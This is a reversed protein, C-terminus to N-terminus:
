LNFLKIANQSTRESVEELTTLKLEAIKEAIVPIYSSENRKGRYPVPTLYPSDTELIIHDLSTQKVVEAMTANKYTVVGGIGLYFGLDIVKEAEQVNGPFCHFVGTINEKKYDKIINILENLSKRSHLVLPLKYQIALEIQNRLAIEQETIFTKDWYYDLGCEGIAYFTQKTIESHIFDLEEKYNSKVSTPHLGIMPFCYEPFDSISKMMAEHHTKDIAPLLFKTVGKEIANTISSGRDSDFEEAYLHTHTDILM